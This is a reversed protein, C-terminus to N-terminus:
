SSGEAGDEPPRRTRGGAMLEEEEEGRSGGGDPSAMSSAGVEQEEGETLLEAQIHGGDEGEQELREGSIEDAEEPAGRVAM